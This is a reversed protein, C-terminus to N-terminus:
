ACSARTRNGGRTRGLERNLAKTFRLQAVSPTMVNAMVQPRALAADIAPNNHGFGLMGYGGNDHLVAGKLTVIWPGRAAAPLYPNIADDPYFNVFGTQAQTLQEAEDLKLFDALESRLERHHAVAASVAEGLMPDVAAMREITADDLGTTRPKGGFERLERLQEILGMTEEEFDM